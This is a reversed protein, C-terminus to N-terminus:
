GHRHQSQLTLRDNSVNTPDTDTLYIRDIDFFEGTGGFNNNAVMRLSNGDRTSDHAATGLTVFPNTNDKYYVTYSNNQEDIELAVTFPTTRNHTLNLTDGIDAGGGARNGVLQIVNTAANREIEFQATLRPVVRTAPTMRCSRM